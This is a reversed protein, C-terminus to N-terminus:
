ADDIVVRNRGTPSKAHMGMAVHLDDGHHDLSLEVMLIRGSVM